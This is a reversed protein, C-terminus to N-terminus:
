WRPPPVVGVEGETEGTTEEEVFAGVVGFVLPLEGVGSGVDELWWRPAPVLGVGRGTVEGDEFGREREGIAEEGVFTGVVDFELPFGPPPTMDMQVDTLDPSPITLLM